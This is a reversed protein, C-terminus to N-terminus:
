RKGFLRAIVQQETDSAEFGALDVEAYIDTNKLSDLQAPLGEVIVNRVTDQAASAQLGDPINKFIINQKNLTFTREALGQKEVTVTFQGVDDIVVGATIQEPKITFVNKGARLQSFSINAIEFVSTENLIDEDIGCHVKAPSCTVTFPDTLFNSPIDLLNAKVPLYARKYVPVTLTIDANGSNITM